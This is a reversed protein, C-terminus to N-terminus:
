KHYLKVSKIGYLLFSSNKRFDGSFLQNLTSKQFRSLNKFSNQNYLQLKKIKKRKAPKYFFRKKIFPWKLSHKQITFLILTSKWWLFIWWLLNKLNLFKNSIYNIRFISEINQFVQTSSRNWETNKNRKTPKYFFRKLVFPWKLSHKQLTFIIGM